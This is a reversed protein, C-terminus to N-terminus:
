CGILSADAIEICWPSAAIRYRPAITNIKHPKPAQFSLRHPHPAGGILHTPPRPTGERIEFKVRFPRSM